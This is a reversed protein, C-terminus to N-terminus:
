KAVVPMYAFGSRLDLVSVNNGTLEVDRIVLRDGDVTFPLEVGRVLDVVQLPPADYGLARWDVDITPSSSRTDTNYLTIYRSGFRELLINAAPQGNATTARANSVPQWGASNLRAVMDLHERYAVAALSERLPQTWFYLEPDNSYRDINIFVGQATYLPLYRRMQETLMTIDAARRLRASFTISRQNAVMRIRQILRLKNALSEDYFEDVLEGDREIQVLEEVFYDAHAGLIGSIPAGSVAIPASAPLAARLARLFALTNLHEFSVLAGSTPDYGPPFTATGLSDPNFDPRLYVGVTDVAAGNYISIGEVPHDDIYEPGYLGNARRAVELNLQGFNAVATPATGVPARPPEYGVGPDPNIGDFTCRRFGPEWELELSASAVSLAEGYGGNADRLLSNALPGPLEFRGFLYNPSNSETVTLATLAYWQDAERDYVPGYVRGGGSQPVCQTFPYIGQCQKAFVPVGAAMDRYIALCTDIDNVWSRDNSAAAPSALLRMSRDYYGTPWLYVLSDIGNAANGNRVIGWMTDIQFIRPHPYHEYSYEELVVMGHRDRGSGSFAAPYLERYKAYASRLGWEPQDPHFLALSFSVSRQNELHAAYIGLHFCIDYSQRAPDYQAYYAAPQQPNIGVAIGSTANGVLNIGNLNFPLESKLHFSGDDFTGIDVLPTLLTRYPTSRAAIVEQRSFDHHWTSGILALPLEVCAEIPRSQPTPGSHTITATLEIHRQHARWVEHTQLQSASAARSITVQDAQATFEAGVATNADLLQQGAPDYLYVGPAPGTRLDAAYGPVELATFRGAPQDYRMIFGDDTALAAPATQAAVTPAHRNTHRMGGTQLALLVAVVAASLTLAGIRVVLRSRFMPQLRHQAPTDARNHSYRQM